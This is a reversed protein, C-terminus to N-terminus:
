FAELGFGTRLEGGRERATMLQMVSVVVRKSRRAIRTGRAEVVRAALISFRKLFHWGVLRGAATVVLHGRVRKCVRADADGDDDLALVAPDDHALAFAAVARTRFGNGKNLEDDEDGREWPM